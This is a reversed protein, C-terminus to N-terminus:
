PVYIYIFMLWVMSEIPKIPTFAWMKGNKVLLRNSGSCSRAKKSSHGTRFRRIDQHREQLAKNEGNQLDDSNKTKKERDFIVQSIHFIINKKALPHPKLFRLMPYLNMAHATFLVVIPFLHNISSKKQPPPLCALPLETISTEAKKQLKESGKFVLTNIPLHIFITINPPPSISISPNDMVSNEGLDLIVKKPLISCYTPSCGQASATMKWPKFCCGPASYQSWLHDCTRLLIIWTM